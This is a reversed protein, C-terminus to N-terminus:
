VAVDMARAGSMFLLLGLFSQRGRDLRIELLAWCLVPPLATLGIGGVAIAVMSWPPPPVQAGAAEACMSAAFDVAGFSATVAALLVLVYRDSRILAAQLLYVATM